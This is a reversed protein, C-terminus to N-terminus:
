TGCTRAERAQPRTGACAAAPRGEREAGARSRHPRRPPAAPARQVLACCDRARRRTRRVLAHTSPPQSRAGRRARHEGRRLSRARSTPPADYSPYPANRTRAGKGDGVRMLGWRVCGGRESSRAAGDARRPQTWVRPLGPLTGSGSIGASRQWMRAPARLAAKLGAKCAVRWAYLARWSASLLAHTKPLRRRM